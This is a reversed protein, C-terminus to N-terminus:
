PQARPFESAGTEATEMGFRKRSLAYCDLRGFGPVYRLALREPNTRRAILGRADLAKTINRESLTGGAAERLCRTPLYVATDDYWGRAERNNTSVAASHPKVTVNWRSAIWEAISGIAAEVPDLATADASGRFREWAWKVSNAIALGPPLVQAETALTGAMLVLAFPLAARRVTSEAGTGALKDAIGLIRERLMAPDIGSASVLWRVFAPGAHGHHQLIGKIAALRDAEVTSNVDSVDIDPFRVAHGPMWEGGDQKVKEGLSTEGSLLVFTQWTYSTRLTADARMRSKGVGGSLAYILQGVAKGDAHGLEDLCLITGNGAAALGEVANGTSRMTRMLGEGTLEPRAWVSAGLRLALTKGRSSIGSFNLGSSDFGCLSLIPGVFGAATALVWHPCDAVTGAASVADQWGVMTGARSVIPDLRALPTLEVARGETLGIIDGSPCAFISRSLGAIAHWGPRSVIAIEANPDAGKLLRVAVHEGDGECRFGADFLLSRIDAAAMRALAGRDLDISRSEGAMDAVVVRLGFGNDRDVHRLRAPIGIPSCIPTWIPERTEPDIGTKQHVMIRGTPTQLYSVRVTELAPLPYAAAIRRLEDDGAKRGAHEKFEDATPKFRQAADIGARVADCGDRRLIDLWDIAEGETGPLAISIALAAHHKFGFERAAREGRRSPSKGEGKPAEDRDAAVIVRETAPWPDFAAIGNACICAAVSTGGAEIEPRFVLAIAAATEIGEALIMLSAADPDGWIVSRGSINEGDAVRASKKPDRPTGDLGTGLEAKGAGGPALYIRHAHTSAHRNVTEFVACPPTAVQKPKSTSGKPPPDFYALASFGVVRTRPRPVAEPEIGLRAGLYTWAMSDDRWNPAPNLLSEPDSRSPPAAKDRSGKNKIIEPRAIIEAARVKAAEFDIGEIKILVDFITHPKCCTCFARARQEDWRWDNTGGHGPYPCDMHGQSPPVIGISGLIELERGKVADKAPKTPVYREPDLM